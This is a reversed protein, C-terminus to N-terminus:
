VGVPPPSGTRRRLALREILREALLALDVEYGGSSVDLKLKSVRARREISIQSRTM